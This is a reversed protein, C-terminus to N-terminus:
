QTHHLQLQLRVLNIDVLVVAAVLEMVSFVVVVEVAV